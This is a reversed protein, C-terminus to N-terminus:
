IWFRSDMVLIEIEAKNQIYQIRNDRSEIEYIRSTVFINMQIATNLDVNNWVRVDDYLSFILKLKDYEFQRM